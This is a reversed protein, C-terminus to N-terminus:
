GGPTFNLKLICFIQFLKFVLNVFIEANCFCIKPTRPQDRPNCHQRFWLQNRGDRHIWLLLRLHKVSGGIWRLRGGSHNTDRPSLFSRKHFSVNLTTSSQRAERRSRSDAHISRRSNLPQIEGQCFIVLRLIGRWNRGDDLNNDEEKRKRAMIKREEKDPILDLPLRHKQWANWVMWWWRVLGGLFKIGYTECFLLVTWLGDKM